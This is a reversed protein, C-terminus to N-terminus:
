LSTLFFIATSRERLKAKKGGIEGAVNPSLVLRLHMRLTHASFTFSVRLFSAHTLVLLLTPSVTRLSSLNTQNNQHIILLGFSMM